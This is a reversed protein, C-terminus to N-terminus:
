SSVLTASSGGIQDLYDIHEQSDKSLFVIGYLSVLFARCRVRSIIIDLARRFTSPANRVGLPM